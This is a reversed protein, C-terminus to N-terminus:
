LVTLSSSAEPLLSSRAVRSMHPATSSLSLTAFCPGALDSILSSPDRLHYHTLAAQTQYAALTSRFGPQHTLPIIIRVNLLHAGM